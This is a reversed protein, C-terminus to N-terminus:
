VDLHDAPPHSWKGAFLVTENEVERAIGEIKTRDIIGLDRLLFASASASWWDLNAVVAAGIIVGSGGETDPTSSCELKGRLNGLCGSSHLKYPRGIVRRHGYRRWNQLYVVDIAADIGLMVGSRVALTRRELHRIYAPKLHEMFIDWDLMRIVFHAMDGFLPPHLAM